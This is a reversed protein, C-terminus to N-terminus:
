KSINIENNKITYNFHYAFQLARLVQQINEKEFTATFPYKGAEDDQLTIKVDFWRELKEKMEYFDENVIELRNQTWATEIVVSDKQNYSLPLLTVSPNVTSGSPEKEKRKVELKGGDNIVAKQNPLLFIKQASNVVQIEVKGKILSTESQEDDPYAKVNFVTGLDKVVYKDTYVIFPLSEDHVVDFLAEGKLYVERGKEGYKEDVRLQSGVNLWIKTSDSLTIVKKEGNATAYSFIGISVTDDAIQKLFKNTTEFSLNMLAKAILMIMLVAAVAAAYRFIKKFSNIKLLSKGKEGSYHKNTGSNTHEQKLMVHLGLVMQRAEEIKIRQFPFDNIYQKWYLIDIENKQLCYSIFSDDVVLEEVSLCNPM